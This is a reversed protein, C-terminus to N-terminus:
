EDRWLIEQQRIFEFLKREIKAPLFDFGVGVEWFGGERAVRTARGTLMLNTYDLTFYLLIRDDTEFMLGGADEKSLKFRYGGLSVDIAKAPLWKGSMPENKECGIHFVLIDWLCSVRLFQRRQIRKPYNAVDAWMIPVGGQMEVRRVAMPFIYLASGDEMIFDFDLERYVPLLAGSILPHAFGVADGKIDEVRSPYHGKYTGANVQIDGKKGVQMKLTYDQQPLYDNAYAM